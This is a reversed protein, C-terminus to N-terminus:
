AELRIREAELRSCRILIATRALHCRRFGTFLKVVAEVVDPGDSPVPRSIIDTNPRSTSKAPLERYTAYDSM